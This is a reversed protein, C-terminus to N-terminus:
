DHRVEQVPESKDSIGEIACGGTAANVWIM